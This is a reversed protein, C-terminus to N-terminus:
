ALTSNSRAPVGGQLCCTTAVTCQVLPNAGRRFRQECGPPPVVPAGGLSSRPALACRLADMLLGLSHTANVPVIQSRLEDNPAHLSVALQAPVCSRCFRRIQPVLGVTSVTIKNKSFHLGLPHTAIQLAKM